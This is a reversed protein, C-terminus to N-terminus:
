GFSWISVLRSIQLPNLVELLLYVPISYICFSNVHIGYGDIPCILHDQIPLHGIQISCVWLPNHLTIYTNEISRYLITTSSLRSTLIGPFLFLKTTSLVSSCFELRPCDASSFGYHVLNTCETCLSLPSLEDNTQRRDIWVSYKPPTLLFLYCATKILPSEKSCAKDRQIESWITEWYLDNGAIALQPIQM